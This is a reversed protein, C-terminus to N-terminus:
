KPADGPPVAKTAGPRWLFVAAIVLGWAVAEILASVFGYVGLFLGIEHASWGAQAGLRVVWVNLLRSAFTLVLMVVLSVSTLLSVTPHRRWTVVAAVLGALWAVYLPLAGLQSWLAQTLDSTEM